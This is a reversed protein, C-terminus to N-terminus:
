DGGATWKFAIRFNAEGATRAIIVGADVSLKVGFEVQIEDPRDAQARLEAVAGRVVPGVQGLVHELTESAERVVPRSRGSRTVPGTDAPEVEVLIHDRGATPFKALETM